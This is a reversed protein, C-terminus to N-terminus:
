GGRHTFATVTPVEQTPIDREVWGRGLFENVWPVTGPSGPTLLIVRDAGPLASRIQQRVFGETSPDINAPLLVIRGPVPYYSEPALLFSRREPDTFWSLQDSETFGPQLLVVTDRDAMSAAITM